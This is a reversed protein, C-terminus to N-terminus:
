PLRKTQNRFQETVEHSLVPRVEKLVSKRLREHGDESPACWVREDMWGDVVMKKKRRRMMMMSESRRLFLHVLTRRLGTVTDIFHSLDVGHFFLSSIASSSLWGSIRRREM